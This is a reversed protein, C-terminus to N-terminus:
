PNEDAGGEIQEMKDRILEATAKASLDTNNIKIYHVLDKPKKKPNFRAYEMTSLIDSESWEM